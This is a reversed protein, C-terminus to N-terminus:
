MMGLRPQSDETAPEEQPVEEDDTEKEITAMLADMIPALAPNAAILQAVDSVQKLTDAEKSKAKAELEIITKKMTDIQLAMQQQQQQQAEETPANEIKKAIESKRSLTSMMIMEEDPIM